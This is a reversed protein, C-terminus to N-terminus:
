QRNATGAVHCQEGYDNVVYLAKDPQRKIADVGSWAYFYTGDGTVYLVMGILEKWWKRPNM